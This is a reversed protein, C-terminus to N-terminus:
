RRVETEGLLQDYDTLHAALPPLDPLAPEAPVPLFEMVTAWRPTLGRRELEVLVAEVECEMTRAAQRLIRLYDLDATRPTCAACLRDYARRFALGPFLDGHFRYQAFAGPKRILWEIIHRYNIAHACTGRLRPMREQLVGALHVEVFEEYRRIRVTEGILRSPVSYIRRDTQITSWRSVHLQEEAYEPWLAVRLPRMVAREEALRKQRGRNAKLFVAEVFPRYHVDSDDFDRSGRLLLHQELRRKLAGNASEVDGNEHPERRNITRPQIGFHDMFELYGRNFGRRGPEAAGMEHTAATSHDTWHEAPVHGLRLLTEQVGKRLALLSESHALTGWQWNSYSLVSHCLLHDFPEGRITIALSNLCTFDTSMRMGPRHEQPFYVEKEPGALARWQRVRRQFTRLQGEQYQDGHRESLWEFLAKSELEPAERLMAEAEPWHADFPDARTRWDRERTPEVVGAGSRLHKSATKRTMGAKLAASEIQGSKQHEM